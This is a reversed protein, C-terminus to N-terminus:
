QMILLWAKSIFGLRRAVREGQTELDKAPPPAVATTDMNIINLSVGPLLSSFFCSSAHSRYPRNSSNHSLFNITCNHM